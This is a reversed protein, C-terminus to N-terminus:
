PKGRAARAVHASFTMPNGGTGYISALSLYPRPFAPSARLGFHSLNHAWLCSFQVLPTLSYEVARVDASRSLANKLPRPADHRARSGSRALTPTTTRPEKERPVEGRPHSAVHDTCGAWMHPRGAASSTTGSPHGTPGWHTDRGPASPSSPSTRRPTPARSPDIRARSRPGLM